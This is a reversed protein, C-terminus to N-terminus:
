KLSYFDLCSNQKNGDLPEKSIILVLSNLTLKPPQKIQDAEQGSREVGEELSLINKLHLVFMPLLIPQM